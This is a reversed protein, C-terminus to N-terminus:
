AVTGGERTMPEEHNERSMYSNEKINEIAGKLVTKYHLLTVSPELDEYEAVLEHHMEIAYAEIAALQDECSPLSDGPGTRVYSAAREMSRTM